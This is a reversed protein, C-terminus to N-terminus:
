RGARPHRGIGITRGRDLQRRGAAAGAACGVHRRGRGIWGAIQGVGIQVVGRSENRYMTLWVCRAILSLRQQGHDVFDNLMAWRKSKAVKRTTIPKAESPTDATGSWMAMHAPKTTM